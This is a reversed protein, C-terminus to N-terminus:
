KKRLSEYYESPTIGVQKKFMRSFHQPYEFGLEYAVQAIGEGTALENKARQIIYQRIYDSATDGTMRKVMDGFYNSSMCLKDACYQVTPIGLTLQLKEEYYDRLLHEFKALIDSNELKRTIFQRNYFRRCFNLVLEIYDVIISDQLEDHRNQLENKIQRMLSTLIGHEEDTMHLAENVRYDFFSYNKIAKELPTGHLLDPHFLLAWGTLMVREGNDEKGGIQGPAVCIVTGKKYDYKGCGYALDIEAEDHFFIGYISYNNLSHRVPSVEAYDIVSVLPHRDTHGVWRSYDSVNRVKLIKNM